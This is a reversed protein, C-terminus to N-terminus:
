HTQFPSDSPLALLIKLIYPTLSINQKLCLPVGETSSLLRANQKFHECTVNGALIKSCQLVHGTIEMHQKNKSGPKAGIELAFNCWLWRSITKWLGLSPWTLLCTGDHEARNPGLRLRFLWCLSAPINPLSSWVTVGYLHSPEGRKAEGRTESVTFLTFRRRKRVGLLAVRSCGCRVSLTPHRLSVDRHQRKAERRQVQGSLLLAGQDPEVALISSMVQPNWRISGHITPPLFIIRVTLWIIRSNNKVTLWFFCSGIDSHTCCNSSKM